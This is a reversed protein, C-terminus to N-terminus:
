AHDSVGAVAWFSRMDAKKTADETEKETELHILHHAKAMDIMIDHYSKGKFWVIGVAHDLDLTPKIEDGIKAYIDNANWTKLEEVKELGKIAELKGKQTSNITVTGVHYMMKIPEVFPAYGTESVLITQKIVDINEAYKVYTDMDSGPLRSAIEIVVPGNKDVKIEAHAPGISIGVACYLKKAYEELNAYSPSNLDLLVDTNYLNDAFKNSIKHYQWLDTVYIGEGTGFMDVAFERGHIYEEILVSDAARYHADETSIVTQFKEEVDKKNHCIFVNQSGSGAPTKVVVPFELNEDIWLLAKKCDTFHEGKAVRLGANKIAMKMDYKNRRASITSTDNHPLGLYEAIRDTYEVAIESGSIVACIEPHTEKLKKAAVTWDEELIFDDYLGNKVCEPIHYEWDLKEYCYKTDIECAIVKYGMEKACKAIGRGICEPNTLVIAKGNYNM